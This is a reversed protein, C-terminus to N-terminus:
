KDGNGHFGAHIEALPSLKEDLFLNINEMASVEKAKYIKIGAAKLVNAANEGCRFTLLIDAGSDAVAQAAKIGAGGASKAADNEMFEASKADTDYIMFYPARGFSVCVETKDTKENVVVAIKM